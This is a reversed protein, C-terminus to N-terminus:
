INEIGGGTREEPCMEKRTGSPDGRQNTPIGKMGSAILNLGLKKIVKITIILVGTRGLVSAVLASQAVSLFRRRVEWHFVM